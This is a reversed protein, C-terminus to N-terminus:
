CFYSFLSIFASRHLPHTPLNFCGQGIPRTFRNRFVCVVNKETEGRFLEEFNIKTKMLAAQSHERYKSMIHELARQHDELAARLRINESHMERIQPNEQNITHIMQKNSKDRALSNLLDLDDKFQLFYLWIYCCLIRILVQYYSDLAIRNRVCTDFRDWQRWSIISARLRKWFLKPWRKGNRLGRRWASLM